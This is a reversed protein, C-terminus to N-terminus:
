KKILDIIIGIIFSLLIYIMISALIFNVDSGLVSNEGYVSLGYKGIIVELLSTPPTIFLVAYLASYMNGGHISPSLMGVIFPLSILFSIAGTM